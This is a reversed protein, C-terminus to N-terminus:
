VFFMVVVTGLALLGVFVALGLLMERREQQRRVLEFLEVLQQANPATEDIVIQEEGHSSVEHRLHGDKMADALEPIQSAHFVLTRQAIGQHPTAV